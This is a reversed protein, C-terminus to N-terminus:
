VEWSRSLDNLLTALRDVTQREWDNKLLLEDSAATQEQLPQVMSDAINEDMKISVPYHISISSEPYDIGITGEDETV